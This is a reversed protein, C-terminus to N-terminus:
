SKHIKLFWSKEDIDVIKARYWCMDQTYQAAVVSNLKPTTILM